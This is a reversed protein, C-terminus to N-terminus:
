DSGQVRYQHICLHMWWYQSVLWLIRLTLCPFNASATQSYIWRTGLRLFFHDPEKGVNRSRSSRSAVSFCVSRYMSDLQMYLLFVHLALFPGWRHWPIKQETTQWCSWLLKNRSININGLMFGHAVSRGSTTETHFSLVARLLLHVSFVTKSLSGCIMCVKKRCGRAWHSHWAVQMYM